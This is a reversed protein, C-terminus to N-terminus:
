LPSAILIEQQIAEVRFIEGDACRSQFRQLLLELPFDFEVDAGFEIGAPRRNLREPAVRPLIRRTGRSLVGAFEGARWGEAGVSARLNGGDDLERQNACGPVGASARARGPPFQPGFASAIRRARRGARVLPADR